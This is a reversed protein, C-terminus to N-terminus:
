YLSRPHKAAEILMRRVASRVEQDDEEAGKDLWRYRVLMDIIDGDLEILYARRGERQRERHRRQQERRRCRDRPTRKPM